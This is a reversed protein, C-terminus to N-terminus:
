PSRTSKAEAKLADAIAKQARRTRAEPTQYGFIGLLHGRRQTSTMAAWGARARPNARFLAELVPPTVQEGEMALLLREALQACRRARAEPGKVAAIWKGFERRISDSFSEAFHLLRADDEFAAILDPPLDAPRVELDPELSLDAMSGVRVNAAHQMTKNVLVFHGPQNGPLPFLSTRFPFGNIEGRVRLRLMTHWAAAVDFPVRAIVWKLETHDPELLARFHRPSSAVSGAAPPTNAAAPINPAPKGSPAPPRPPSPKRTSTM